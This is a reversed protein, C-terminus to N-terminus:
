VPSYPVAESRTAPNSAPTLYSPHGPASTKESRTISHTSRVLPGHTGTKSLIMCFVCLFNNFREKKSTMTSISYARSKKGVQPPMDQLSHVVPFLFNSASVNHKFSVACSVVKLIVSRNNLPSLTDLLAHSFSVLAAHIGTRRNGCHLTGQPFRLIQTSCIGCKLLRLFM